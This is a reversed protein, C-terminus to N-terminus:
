FRLNTSVSSSQKLYGSELYYIWLETEQHRFRPFDKTDRWKSISVSNRCGQIVEGGYETGVIYTIEIEDSFIFMM